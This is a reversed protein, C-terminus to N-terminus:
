SSIFSYLFLDLLCITDQISSFHTLVLELSRLNEQSKTLQINIIFLTILINVLIIFINM